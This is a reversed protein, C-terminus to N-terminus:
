SASYLHYKDIPTASTNLFYKVPTGFRRTDRIKTGYRRAAQGLALGGDNALLLTPDMVKLGRGQNHELPEELVLRNQWVGEYL